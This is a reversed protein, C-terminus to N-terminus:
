PVHSKVNMLYTIKTIIVYVQEIDNLRLMKFKIWTFM